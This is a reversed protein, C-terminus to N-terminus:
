RDGAEDWAEPAVAHELAQAVLAALRYDEDAEACRDLACWALAGHGAQWAALALLAAPAALLPVPTRRVVDTWFAVHRAATPRRLSACAADRVPTELLGRLLRAVDDDDPSSGDAVHREVLEAAWVADPPHPGPPDGTRGALAAVVRGTGVPDAALTDRLDDRSAHVVRGALVAQALFPHGSVDYPVGCAPAGPREGLGSAWRRGDAHLVDIMAVDAREFAGYLAWAADRALAADESYVVFLVRRVGHALAPDLLASVADPLGDATPPLDCRAHFPRAAGFTLMVISDAPTFGLVVPVLALADEPRRVTLVTGDPLSDPRSDPLPTPTTM